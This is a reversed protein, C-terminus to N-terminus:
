LYLSARRDIQLERVTGTAIADADSELSLAALGLLKAVLSAFLSLPSNM